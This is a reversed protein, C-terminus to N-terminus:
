GAADPEVEDIRRKQREAGRYDDVEHQCEPHLHVFVEASVCVGCNPFKSFIIFAYHTIIFKSVCLLRADAFEDNRM